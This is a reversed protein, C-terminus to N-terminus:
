SNNDATNLLPGEFKPDDVMVGVSELKFQLIQRQQKRKLLENWANQYAKRAQPLKNQAVYIDGRTEDATASFVAQNVNGLTKLAADYKKQAMQAYALRLQIINELGADDLDSQAVRTLAKEAEAYNGQNFAVKALVLESLAAHVSDPADKIISDATAAISKQVSPNNDAQEAGDILQQVKATLQQNKAVQKSKWYQWGVFALVAVLIGILISSGYKKLFAKLQELQEEETIASM